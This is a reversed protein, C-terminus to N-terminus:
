PRDSSDTPALIRLHRQPIALQVTALLNVALKDFRTALARSEKLGNVCREVVDRRRYSEKAFGPRRRRGKRTPIVAGIGHRRLWRRIWPYGYGKDGALRRPRRRPRGRRRPVRAADMVPAFAKSEHRQGAAVGAALPLGRGDAVLHITTGFGGRSRGPAHDAPEGAVKKQLRRGRRPQGPHLRRGRVV